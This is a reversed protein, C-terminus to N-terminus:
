YMIEKLKKVFQRLLSVWLMNEETYYQKFVPVQRDRTLDGLIDCECLFHNILGNYDPSGYFPLQCVTCVWNLRRLVRTQDPDGSNAFLKAM